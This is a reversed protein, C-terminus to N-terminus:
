YAFTELLLLIRSANFTVRIQVNVKAVMLRNVCKEISSVLADWRVIVDDVDQRLEPLSHDENM